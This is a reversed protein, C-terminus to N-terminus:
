SHSHQKMSVIPTYSLTAGRKHYDRRPSPIVVRHAEGEYPAPANVLMYKARRKSHPRERIAKIERFPIKPRSQQKENSHLRKYRPISEESDNYEFMAQIASDNLPQLTASHVHAPNELVKLQLTVRDGNVLYTVFFNRNKYSYVKSYSSNDTLITAMTSQINLNDDPRLTDSDVLFGDVITGVNYTGKFLGSTITAYLSYEAYFVKVDDDPVNNLIYELGTFGANMNRNLAPIEPRYNRVHSRAGTKRPTRRNKYSRDHIKTYYIESKSRTGPIRRRRPIFEKTRGIIHELRIDFERSLQKMDKRPNDVDVPAEQKEQTLM